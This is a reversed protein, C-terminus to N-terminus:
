HGGCTRSCRIHELKHDITSRVDIGDIRFELLRSQHESNSFVMRIGYSNEDFSTGCQVYVGPDARHRCESRRAFAGSAARFSESDIAASNGISTLPCGDIAAHGWEKVRGSVAPNFFCSQQYTGPSTDLQGLGVFDTRQEHRDEIVM